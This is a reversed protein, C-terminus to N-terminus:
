GSQKGQEAALDHWAAALKLLDRRMAPFQTMTASEMAEGAMCKYHAARTRHNDNDTM